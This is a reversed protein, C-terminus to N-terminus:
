LRARGAARATAAPGAPQVDAGARASAPQQCGELRSRVCRRNGARDRRHRARRRLWRGSRLM